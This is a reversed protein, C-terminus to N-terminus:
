ARVLIGRDVEVLELGNWGSPGSDDVHGYWVVRRDDILPAAAVVDSAM